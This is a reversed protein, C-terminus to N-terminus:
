LVGWTRCEGSEVGRSDSVPTRRFSLCWRMFGRKPNQHLPGSLFLSFDAFYNRINWLGLGRGVRPVDRSKPFIVRRRGVGVFVFGGGM